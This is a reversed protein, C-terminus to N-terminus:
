CMICRIPVNTCPKSTSCNSAASIKFQYAEPCSSNAKGRLIGITCTGDGMLDGCFGCPYKAAVPSALQEEQVGRLARLIHRGMHNQRDPAAIDKCCLRC